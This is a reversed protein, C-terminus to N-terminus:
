KLTILHWIIWYTPGTRWVLGSQKEVLMFCLWRNKPGGFPPSYREHCFGFSKVDNEINTAQEQSKIKTRCSSDLDFARFGDAHLGAMRRIPNVSMGLKCRSDVKTMFLYFHSLKTHPLPLVKREIKELIFIAWKIQDRSLVFEEDKLFDNKVCRLFHLERGKAHSLLKEEQFRRIRLVIDVAKDARASYNGKM